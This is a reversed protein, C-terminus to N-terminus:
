KSRFGSRPVAAATPILSSPKAWYRLLQGTRGPTVSSGREGDITEEGYRFPALEGARM